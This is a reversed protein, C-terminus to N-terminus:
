LHLGKYGSELKRLRHYKHKSLPMAAEAKGQRKFGEAIGRLINPALVEFSMDIRRRSSCKILDGKAIDAQSSKPSLGHDSTRIHNVISFVPGGGSM